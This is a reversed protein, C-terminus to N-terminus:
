DTIYMSCCYSQMLKTITATDASGSLPAHHATAIPHLKHKELKSITTPITTGAIDFWVTVTTKGSTYTPEGLVRCIYADSASFRLLRGKPLSARQDGALTFTTADTRTAGTITQWENDVGIYALNNWTTSGDGLKMVGSDTEIGLEGKKLVPNKSAFAAKTGHKVIVDVDIIKNAM